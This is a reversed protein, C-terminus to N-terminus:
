CDTNAVSELRRLRSLMASKRLEGLSWRWAHSEQALAFEKMIEGLGSRRSMSKLSASPGGVPAVIRENEALLWTHWGNEWARQRERGLRENLVEHRKTMCRVAKSEGSSKSSAPNDMEPPDLDGVQNPAAEQGQRAVMRLPFGFGLSGEVSVRSSSAGTGTNCTVEVSQIAPSESDVVDRTEVNDEGASDRESYRPGLTAFRLGPHRRQLASNASSQRSKKRPPESIVDSSSSSSSSSSRSLRQSGAGRTDKAAAEAPDGKRRKESQLASIQEMLQAGFEALQEKVGTKSDQIARAQKDLAQQVQVFHAATNASM